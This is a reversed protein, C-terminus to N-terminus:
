NLATKKDTKDTKIQAPSTAWGRANYPKAPAKTKKDTKKM